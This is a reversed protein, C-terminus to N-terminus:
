DKFFILNVNDQLIVDAIDKREEENLDPAIKLLLPPLKELNLNNRAVVVQSILNELEAKKQLSRLGPTNPSSINIVLYDAVPGFKNVGDVYDQAASESLKNKGLNVGIITRDVQDVEHKVRSYV